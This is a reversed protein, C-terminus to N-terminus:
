QKRVSSCQFIFSSHHKKSERKGRGVAVVVVVVVIVEVEEVM